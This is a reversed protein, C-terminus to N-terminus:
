FFQLMEASGFPLSFEYRAVRSYEMDDAPVCHLHIAGVALAGHSAQRRSHHVASRRDIAILARHRHIWAQLLIHHFAFSMARHRHIWAQRRSHHVARHRCNIALAHLSHHVARSRRRDVALARHCHIWVQRRRHHVARHCCNIALAHLSRGRGRRPTGHDEDVLEVAEEALPPPLVVVHPPVELRLEELKPIAHAITAVIRAASRRDEEGYLEKYKFFLM